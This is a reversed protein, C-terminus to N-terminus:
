SKIRWRIVEIFHNKWYDRKSNTKSHCSHCLCILNSPNNNQKNYDIHHIENGFKSCLNCIYNDRERISKRLTETWDNSYPEFSKGGLWRPHNELSFDAHNESWIKALKAMREDTEKTLGKNWAKKGKMGRPHEKGEWMHNGKNWVPYNKKKGKSALSMRRKTEESKKHGKKLGM